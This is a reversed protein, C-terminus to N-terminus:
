SVSRSSKASAYRTAVASDVSTHRTADNSLAMSRTSVTSRTSGGRVHGASSHGDMTTTAATSRHAGGSQRLLSCDGRIRTSADEVPIKCGCLQPLSPVGIRTSV